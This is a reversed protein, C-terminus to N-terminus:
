RPELVEAQLLVAERGLLPHTKFPGARYRIRSGTRKKLAAVEAAGLGKGDGAPQIVFTGGDGKEVGLRVLPPAGVAVLTGEEWPPLGMAGVGACLGLWLLLWRM